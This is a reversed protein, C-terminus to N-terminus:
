GEVWTASENRKAKGRRGQIAGAVALVVMAAASVPGAVNGVRGYITGDHEALVIESAYGAERWAQPHDPQVNGRADIVCSIGTNAARVVPVGLEIARWRSHLLHHERVGAWGGFWGDNTVNVIVHARRKGRDYVMARVAGSVTSEFCIPTAVVVAGSPRRVELPQFGSGESLEFRMGQAGFNLLKQELWPWDSIYPMVEGFPTLCMKDYRAVGRGGELL